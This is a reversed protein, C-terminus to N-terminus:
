KNDTLYVLRQVCIVGKQMVIALVHLHAQRQVDLMLESYAVLVM